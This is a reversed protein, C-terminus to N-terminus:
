QQYVLKKGERLYAAMEAHLRTLTEEQKEPHSALLALVGNIFSRCLLEEDSQKGADNQRLNTLLADLEQKTRLACARSVAEALAMENAALRRMVDAEMDLRVLLRKSLQGLRASRAHQGELTSLYDPIRGLDSLEGLWTQQVLFVALIILPLMGISLVTMFSLRM